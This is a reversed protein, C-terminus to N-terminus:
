ATKAKCTIFGGSVTSFGPLCGAPAKLACFFLGAPNRGCPQEGDM